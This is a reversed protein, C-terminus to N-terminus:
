LRIAGTAAQLIMLVDLSTIRDDGSVDYLPDYERSGVAIQLAIVADTTTFTPTEDPIQACPAPDNLIPLYTVNGKSPDDNWDHISVNIIDRDTTGWWNNAADVDDTQDNYFQYEYYGGNEIINNYSINNNTSGDGWYDTTLYFGPNTNNHVWNCTINNNNAGSLYTGYDNSNVTNKTLTNSSSSLWIGYRNNSATNSQLTNCCSWPGIVIGFYDNSNVTNSQLMNNSSDCFLDIGRQENNSANNRQLTNSSSRELCIGRIGNSNATNSELTNSDSSEMYIGVDNNSASVNEIRSNETYAFLVGQTNNTLTLDKVTINTCNVIGVYGADDPIQKDKQDVWYYVTKGDVTNSTDINQTYHSLSDAVVGFNWRNGSMMNGQLMNGSSCTLDIGYYNNSNATNNQLTNSNSSGLGIGGFKNDSANNNTLTNNNSSGVGIGYYNNSAINDSINCHSANILCIGAKYIYPGITGTATFGSINVYNGTVEFVYDDPSAATVTVVDAGEGQLTLEKSVDVNETYSGNYVFITDGVAANNVADQIKTYDCGSSCVTLTDASATGCFVAIMALTLMIGNLKGMTNRKRAKTTEM